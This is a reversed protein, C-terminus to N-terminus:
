IIKLLTDLTNLIDFVGETPQFLPKLDSCIILSKYQNTPIQSKVAAIVLIKMNIISRMVVQFLDRTPVFGCLM